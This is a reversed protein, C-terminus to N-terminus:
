SLQQSGIWLLGAAVCLVVWGFHRGRTALCNGIGSLLYVACVFYLAEDVVPKRRALVVVMTALLMWSMSPLHWVARTVRRWTLSKMVGVHEPEAFWPRLLNAEGIYSHAVAAFIALVSSAYLYPM